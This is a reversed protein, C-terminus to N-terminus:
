EGQLSERHEEAREESKELSTNALTITPVHLKALSTAARIM